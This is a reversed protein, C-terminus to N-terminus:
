SFLETSLYREGFDCIFTAIIKNPYKEKLKKAAVVNAGSTIGCLIGKNKALNKAEEIALDQEIRIIGDVYKKQQAYIEPIFNAGIGQIKHPAAHGKTILPSEEPEVGFAILNPLHKKLGKACGCITGGTGIGGVIIDLKGNTDNYLEDATTLEHALPNSLNSFQLPIYSNPHIQKLQEARNVAGQMGEEAPTLILEAGYAKIIKKREESMNEPMVIILKLNLVSCCMALGIGTNGSTPEIIVTDTNILGKKIGENLMYLSARDKISNSPNYFELKLLISEDYRVLPTKGILDTIKDYIV